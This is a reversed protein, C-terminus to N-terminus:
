DTLRRSIPNSVLYLVCAEPGDPDHCWSKHKYNDVYLDSLSYINKQKPLNIVIPPIIERRIATETSSRPSIKNTEIKDEIKALSKKEVPLPM